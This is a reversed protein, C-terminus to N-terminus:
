ANMFTSAFSTPRWPMVTLATAGNAVRGTSGSVSSLAPLAVARPQSPARAGISILNTTTERGAFLLVFFTAALEEHTLREEHGAGILASVLDTADPAERHRVVIADVYGRFEQM